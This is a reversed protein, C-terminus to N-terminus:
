GEGHEEGECLTGCPHETGDETVRVYDRLAVGLDIITHHGDRCRSEVTLGNRNTFVAFRASTKERLVFIRPVEEPKWARWRAEPKIRYFQPCNQSSLAEANTWKSVEGRREVTKGEAMARVLPLWQAANQKTIM